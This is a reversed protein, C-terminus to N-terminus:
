LVRMGGGIAVEVTKTVGSVTDQLTITASDTTIGRPTFCISWTLGSFAVPSDLKFELTTDVQQEAAPASCSGAYMVTAQSISTPKVTYFYTSALTKSRVRKLAGAFNQASFGVDNQLSLYQYGVIGVLVGSITMAVLVELLTFGQASSGKAKM